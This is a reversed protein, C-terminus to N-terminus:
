QAQWAQELFAIFIVILTVSTRRVIPKAFFLLMTPIRKGVYTTGHSFAVNGLRFERPISCDDRCWVM